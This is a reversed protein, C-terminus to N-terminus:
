FSILYDVWGPESVDPNNFNFVKDIIRLSNSELFPLLDDDTEFIRVPYEHEVLQGEFRYKDRWVARKLKRQSLDFSPEYSVRKGDIFLDHAVAEGWFDPHYYNLAVVGDKALMTAINKFLLHLQDEDTLLCFSNYAAFIRDFKKPLVTKTVDGVHKKNEPVDIFVSFEPSLEITEIDIGERFLVNALRGFGAFLELSSHGACFERYFSIDDTFSETHHKYLSWSEAYLDRM